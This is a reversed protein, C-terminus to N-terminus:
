SQFNFHTIRYFVWLGTVLFLLAALGATLLPIQDLIDYTQLGFAAPTSTSFADFLASAAAFYAFPPKNRYPDLIGNFRLLTGPDPMFLFAFVSCLAYSLVGEAEVCSEGSATASIAIQRAVSTTSMSGIDLVPISSSASLLQFWMAYINPDPGADQWKSPLSGPDNEAFRIRPQSRFQTTAGEVHWNQLNNSQSYVFLLYWGEGNLTCGPSTYQIVGTTTTAEGTVHTFQCAQLTAGSFDSHEQQYLYLKLDNANTTTISGLIRVATVITGSAATTLGIPQYFGDMDSSGDDSHTQSNTGSWPNYEVVELARATPACMSLIGITAFIAIRYM